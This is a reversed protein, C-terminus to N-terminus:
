RAQLKASANFRMRCILGEPRYDFSVEGGFERPLGTQLLNSGFGRRTPAQVSPGGEECWVIEITAPEVSRDVTWSVSATGEPASLAGYKSANTALEYFAMHLTVAPESAVQVGPGSVEFRRALRDKGSFPALTRNVVDALSAGQWANATLLDHALVLARIRGDFALTFERPDQIAMSTQLAISQVSALTNKVRHNLESILANQREEALKRQTVDLSVGMSSVPAGDPGYEARGRVHIWVTEGDPRIVRYETELDERAAFAATVQRDRRARDDPHVLAQLAEYTFPESSHWGYDRRCIDSTALVGTRMDLAWLGLRAARIAVDLQETKLRDVDKLKENAEALQELAQKLQRNSDKIRTDSRLVEAEMQEAKATVTQIKAAFAANAQERAVIFETVDEVRHIIYDVKGDAGLVPTNVPSWYKLDFRGSDDRLPIDYKQVGMADATRERVVRDLSSRLDSVGTASNDHPNDPFVDFLPRGVIAARATGTASLYADNVAVISFLPADARLLLYPNPTADFIRQLDAIGPPTDSAPTAADKNM